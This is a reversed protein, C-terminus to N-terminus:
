TKQTMRYHGHCQGHGLIQAFRFFGGLRGPPNGCFHGLGAAQNNMTM